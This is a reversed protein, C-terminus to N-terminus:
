ISVERVNSQEISSIKYNSANDFGSSASLTIRLDILYKKGAVANIIFEGTGTLIISGSAPNSSSSNSLDTINFQTRSDSFTATSGDLFGADMANLFYSSLQSYNGAEIIGDLNNIRSILNTVTTDYNPEPTVTGSGGCACLIFVVFLQYINLKKM